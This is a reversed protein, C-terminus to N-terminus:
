IHMVKRPHCQPDDHQMCLDLTGEPKQRLRTGAQVREAIPAIAVYRRVMRYLNVVTWSSQNFVFSQGDWISVQDGDSGLQVRELGMRDALERCCGCM